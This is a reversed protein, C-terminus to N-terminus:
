PLWKQCCIFYQTKVIANNNSGNARVTFLAWVIITSKLNWLTGIGSVKM